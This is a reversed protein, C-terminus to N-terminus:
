DDLRIRLIKLKGDRTVNLMPNRDNWGRRQQDGNSIKPVRSFLKSSDWKVEPVFKGAIAADYPTEDEAQAQLVRSTRTL